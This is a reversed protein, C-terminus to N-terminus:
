KKKATQRDEFRGLAEIYHERYSPDDPELRTAMRFENVAAGLQGVEAVRNVMGWHAAQEASISEGTLIMELAKKEPMLRPLLAAAVPPFAGVKIEPQGFRADRSAVIFDCAIALEMGGGLCPGKVVAVTPCRSDFAARILSHFERLMEPARDPFHDRIEAGASFAKEGAGRVEVLRVAPDGLVAELQARLERITAIDLINLPPRNIILRGVADRREVLVVPNAVQTANM